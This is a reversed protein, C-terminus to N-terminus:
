SAEYAFVIRKAHHKKALSELRSIMRRRGAADNPYSLQQPQDTGVAYRLLMFRDHLDCGIMIIKSM